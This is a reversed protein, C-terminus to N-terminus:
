VPGHTFLSIISCTGVHITRFRCDLKNQNMNSLFLKKVVNKYPFLFFASNSASRWDTWFLTFFNKCFLYKKVKGYQTCCNEARKTGEHISKQKKKLPNSIPMLYHM